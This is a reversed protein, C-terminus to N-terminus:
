GICDNLGKVLEYTSKYGLDSARKTNAVSHRVGSHKSVYNPTISVGHIKCMTEWLDKTSTGVGTGIDYDGVVDFAWLFARVVDKIYIYDRTPEGNGNITPSKHAKIARMFKPIVSNESQGQGYVNFLRLIVISLDKSYYECYTEGMAKSLAYPSSLPEYTSASSAFIVKKVGAKKANELVNLTGLVNNDTYELPKLFSESVDIKAALHIIYDCSFMEDLYKDRVDAHYSYVDHYPKSHSLNDLVTVKYKKKLEEVLYSGIFGLGGTVLVRDM